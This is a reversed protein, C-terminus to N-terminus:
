DNEKIIETFNQILPTKHPNDKSFHQIRIPQSDRVTSTITKRKLDTKTREM